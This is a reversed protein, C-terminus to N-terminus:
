PFLELDVTKGEEGIEAEGAYSGNTELKKTGCVGGSPEYSMGKAAAEEKIDEGDDAFAVSKLDKNSSGAPITVTCLGAVDVVISKGVISMTGETNFELETSSVTAKLGFAECESYKVALVVATQREASADGIFTSDCSVSGATASITQRGARILLPNIGWYIGREAAVKTFFGTSSLPKICSGDEYYSVNTSRVRVCYEIPGLQTYEKSNNAYVFNGAGGM